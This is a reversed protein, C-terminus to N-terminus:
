GESRSKLYKGLAAESAAGLSQFALYAIQRGGAGLAEWFFNRRNEDLVQGNIAHLAVKTMAMPAAAADRLGRMAEIEQASNLSQLTLKFTVYEGSENVFMDPECDVGDVDFTVTRRKVIEGPNLAGKGTPMHRAVLRAVLDPKYDEPSGAAELAQAMAEPTFEPAEENGEEPLPAEPAETPREARERPRGTKPAQQQSM